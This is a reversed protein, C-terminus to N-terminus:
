VVVMMMFFYGLSCEINIKTPYESAMRDIWQGGSASGDTFQYGMLKIYSLVVM